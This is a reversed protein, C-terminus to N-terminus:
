RIPITIGVRYAIFDAQSETAVVTPRGTGNYTVGKSSVYTAQGNRHYRAGLDVLVGRGLAAVEFGIGASAGLSLVWDSAVDQSDLEEKQGTNSRDAPINISTSTAFRAFGITGAVYPRVASGIPLSLQPGVGLTLVGSKTESELDFFGVGTSLSFPESKSAYQVYGLEARLSLISQSDIGYTGAGDIGWGQSVNQAFDGLPQAYVGAGGLTFRPLSLSGSPSSLVIQGRAASPAVFLALAVLPSTLPRALARLRLTM